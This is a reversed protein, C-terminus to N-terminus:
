SSIATRTSVFYNFGSANIKKLCAIGKTAQKPFYQFMIATSREWHNILFNKDCLKESTIPFFGTKLWKNFYAHLMDRSNFPARKTNMLQKINLVHTENCKIKILNFDSPPNYMINPSPRAKSDGISSLFWKFSGYLFCRLTREKMWSPRTSKM